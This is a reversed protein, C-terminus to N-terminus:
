NYDLVLIKLHPMKSLNEIQKINNHSLNLERLNSLIDLNQMEKIHNYSLDFRRLSPGLQKLIENYQDIKTIDEKIISLEIIKSYNSSM